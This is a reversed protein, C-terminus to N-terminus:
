SREYRRENICSSWDTETAIASLFGSSKLSAVHDLMTANIFSAEPGLPNIGLIEVVRLFHSGFACKRWGKSLLPIYFDKFANLIELRAALRKILAAMNEDSMPSSTFYPKGSVVNCWAARFLRRTALDFNAESQAALRFCCLNFCACEEVLTNIYYGKIEMTAAFEQISNVESHYLKLFHKAGIDPDCLRRPGAFWAM